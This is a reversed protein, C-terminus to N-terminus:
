GSVLGTGPVAGPAVEQRGRWAQDFTAGIGCHCPNDEYPPEGIWVIWEGNQRAVTVAFEDDGQILELLESYAQAELEAGKIWRMNRNRTM